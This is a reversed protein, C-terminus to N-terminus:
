NSPQDNRVEISCLDVRGDTNKACKRTFPTLLRVTVSASSQQRMVHRMFAYFRIFRVNKSM